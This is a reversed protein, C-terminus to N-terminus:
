TLGAVRPASCETEESGHAAEDLEALRAEYPRAEDARGLEALFRAYARLPKRQMSRWETEGLLEIADRFLAEAEENRGQAERVLALATTTTIRSTIDRPTLVERAELAFREAEDV